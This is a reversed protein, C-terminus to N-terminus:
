KHANGNDKAAQQAPGQQLVQQALAYYGAHGHRGAAAFFGHLYGSQEGLGM